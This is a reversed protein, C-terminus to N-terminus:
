NNIILKKTLTGEDSLIELLYLGNSLDITPIELTHDGSPLINYNLTSILRGMSDHIRVNFRSDSNLSFGINVARSGNSPNPFIILNSIQHSEDLSSLESGTRFTRGGTAPACSQTENFGRVSWFYIQNPNLETLFAANTEVVRTVIQFPNFVDIAYHTAGSVPEWELLVANYSPIVEGNSPQIVVPSSLVPTEDPIYSRRLYSRRPTHFDSFMRNVQQDTFQHRACTLFYSMQNNEMPDIRVNNRDRIDRSWNCSSAGLGFMYDPPTDCLRDAAVNCNLQNMLEVPIQTGPANFLMVPNGHKQEDYPDGEWGFFTHDLSFFHGVEHSLSNSTDRVESQRIVVLDRQPSYYGLINLGEGGPINQTIFINMAENSKQGALLSEFQSPNEFPNTADYFNFGDHIYLVMNAEEFDRNLRCLQDLVANYSIRGSGDTRAVMHFKVPVYLTNNRDYKSLDVHRHAEDVMHRVFMQDGFSVGCRGRLHDQGHISSSLLLSVIAIVSAIFYHKGM